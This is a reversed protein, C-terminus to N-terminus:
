QQSAIETFVEVYYEGDKVYIRGGDQVVHIDEGPYLLQTNQWARDDVEVVYLGDELHLLVLDGSDPFFDFWLVEKGLRDIRIDRRCVREGQLASLNSSGKFQKLLAETVHKGYESSTKKEGQYIVCYYYPVDDPNGNWSIYIEGENEYLSLDRWSRTTTAALLDLLPVSTAQETDFRFPEKEQGNLIMQMETSSAILSAVYAYEPNVILSSTATSSSAFHLATTSSAFDFATSTAADFVVGRGDLPNNWQTIIRIQPVQPMNFSAVETVFHAYVPLNKVWTQVNNGQVHLRHMGAELNQIYAARQFVRMDRVPENNVFIETADTDNRVYLGGVSKISTLESTFDFRYGIAYFVSFPVAFLFLALSLFFVFRRKKQSLPKMEVTPTM